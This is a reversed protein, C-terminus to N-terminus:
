ADPSPPANTSEKAHWHWYLIKHMEASRSQRVFKGAETADEFAHCGDLRFVIASPKQTLQKRLGECEAEKAALAGKLDTTEVALVEYRASGESFMKQWHQHSERLEANEAELVVRKEELRMMLRKREAETRELEECREVAALAERLINVDIRFRGQDRCVDRLSELDEPSM